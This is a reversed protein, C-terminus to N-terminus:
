YFRGILQIMALNSGGSRAMSATGLTTVADATQRGLVDYSYSHVNGDRDTMTLKEGLANATYTVQQASSPNGTTPDPYQLASLLDNSYIKSGGTVTVGFVYSTTEYAGGPMDAKVTLTNDNGDYTFETTKNSSNTPTGDTYDEITKTTRGLNDYYNKQVIGRPDTTTDLFAAATFTFSTVLVTDSPSPPSTPRTYASGGNTGVDVTGTLRNATDYYSAVYSNRSKPSTNPDGLEGTATEDHFRDKTTVLIPNSNADYTTITESLVADGTVNSADSWTTDGGGDTAYRKTLRSAGDYVSKQAVGGPQLVKIVDGRHDYWTNTNLSSTSITGNTQDVSFRHGLYVRGQDDYSATSHERLLSSSPPNPVGNTSTISVGDGDYHDTATTEALNDLTYYIIPRHTTSDESTQVGSKSAVLRDRWDFYQNTVRNAASGGPIQTVQTLDGDGVGNTFPPISGTVLGSTPETWTTGLAVPTTNQLVENGSASAVYVNYGTAGAVSAPSTIQLLHNASVALTSEASGPGAPGNFVYAVKVYYTTAHLTGGSTQSLTPASPATAMDYVNGTIQIMNSPSTNNTPSWEGSAPTDNTGIWTSVVRGLGDYFTRYITGNPTQTRDKRGRDDYGYNTTYYNTNLTGIYASVSYTVGSLNFYDDKRVIQGGASMYQRSLTQVNSVAEGGTPNGNGDYAPTASMTLTEYYSSVRDERVDQTPGTTTHSTSNWGPYTRLEYNTDLYVNFTNNGNPDTIETPRGLGDVVYSTILHLGGGTPTTWGSPLNQFDGTHTTDVDTITKNVAGTVPDFSTYNIFGDGDKTWIQRGYTDFFTTQTDATGPGNQGSSIVPLSTTMSQIQNTGTFFTYSFSTTEAGTGDTNRYQSTNAIVYITISSATQSFYQQSSTIIATGLEGQQVKADKLYGIVDGATTSTATTSTGYDTIYLLGSNDSM